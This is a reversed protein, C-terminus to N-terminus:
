VVEKAIFRDSTYIMEYYRDPLLVKDILKGGLTNSSVSMIDVSAPTKMMLRQNEELTTPLNRITFANTASDVTYQLPKIERIELSISSVGDEPLLNLRYYKYFGRNDTIYRPSTSSISNNNMALDKWTDKDVSGQLLMYSLNINDDIIISFSSIDTPAPLEIDIRMDTSVGVHRFYTDRNGDFALNFPQNSQATMTTTVTYGDKTLTKGSLTWTSPFTTYDYPGQSTVKRSVTPTYYKNILKLKELDTLINPKSM